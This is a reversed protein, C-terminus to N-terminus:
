KEEKIEDKMREHVEKEIDFMSERRKISTSILSYVWWVALGLLSLVILVILFILFRGM